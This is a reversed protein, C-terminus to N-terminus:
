MNSRDLFDRIEYATDKYEKKSFDKVTEEIDQPPFLLWTVADDIVEEDVEEKEWDTLYLEGNALSDYLSRMNRFDKTFRSQWYETRLHGECYTTCMCATGDGYDVIIIVDESSEKLILVRTKSM